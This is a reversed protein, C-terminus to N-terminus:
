PEQLAALNEFVPAYMRRLGPSGLRENVVALAADYDSGLAYAAAVFVYWHKQKLLRDDDSAYANILGEPSNLLDFVPFTWERIFEGISRIRQVIQEYGTAFWRQHADKPAAYEVPQAVILEPANALLMKNRGVLRLAMETVDPMGVRLVPHIHIEASPEYKPFYDAAVLIAHRVRETSAVYELSSKGRKLGYPVVFSDGNSGLAELLDTKVDQKDRM